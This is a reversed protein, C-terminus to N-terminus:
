SLIDYLRPRDVDFSTFYERFEDSLRWPSWDRWLTFRARRQDAVSGLLADILGPRLRLQWPDLMYGEPKEVTERSLECRFSDYGTIYNWFAIDHEQEPHLFAGDVVLRMGTQQQFRIRAAFLEPGLMLRMKNGSYIMKGLPAYESAIYTWAERDRLCFMDTDTVDPWRLNIAAWWWRGEPEVDFDTDPHSYGALRQYDAPPMGIEGSPAAVVILPQTRNVTKDACAAQDLLLPADSKLTDILRRRLEHLDRIARALHSDSYAREITEVFQEELGFDAETEEIVTRGFLTKCTANVLEWAEDVSSESYRPHRASLAMALSAFRVGPLYSSSTETNTQTQGWLRAALAGYCLPLFVADSIALMNKEAADVQLLGTRILVEYAWKYKLNLVDEGPHDTQVRRAMDFGFVRHTKGMQVHYAIAELLAEGGVQIAGVPSPVPRRDDQLMAKRNAVAHAIKLMRDDLKEIGAIERAADDLNRDLPLLVRGASIDATLVAHANAYVELLSRIRFAGYNTLVFDLFHRKEHWVASAVNAARTQVWPDTACGIVHRLMRDDGVIAHELALGIERHGRSLGVLHADYWLTLSAPDFQLVPIV